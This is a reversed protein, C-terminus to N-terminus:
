IHPLYTGHAAWAFGADMRGLQVLNDGASASGYSGSGSRSGSCAVANLDWGQQQHPAEVDTVTAASHLPDAQVGAQQQGSRYAICDNISKILNETKWGITVLQEVPLGELNHRGFMADHLLLTTERQRNDREAKRLQDQMKGIRERVYDEGDLKKKCQDLEPMSRLRDIVRMGEQLSPWVQVQSSEGEPLIFVCVDVGCLISLEGAKKIMGMARKKCTMKRTPDNAIYKVIVKRRAM